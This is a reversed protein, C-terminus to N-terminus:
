ECHLENYYSEFEESVESWSYEDIMVQRSQEGIKHRKCRDDLLSLSRNALDNADNGVSIQNVANDSLAEVGLPNSVVPIELAMAELIKNKIGSGSVMPLLAIKANSITKVIDDVYGTFEVNNVQETQLEMPPNPGVILFKTNPRKNVIQPYVDQLIYEVAKKNPPFDLNGHFVIDYESDSGRLKNDPMFKVTDVGNKIVSIDGGSAVNRLANADQNSVVVSGDFASIMKEELNKMWVYKIFNNLYEVISQSSNMDRKFQLSFSDGFDIVKTFTDLEITVWGPARPSNIQLVDVNNKQGFEVIESEVQRIVEPTPLHQAPFFALATKYIRGPITDLYSPFKIAKYDNCINFLESPNDPEGGFYVLFINNGMEKLNKCINNARVADGSDLPLIERSTFYLVNM